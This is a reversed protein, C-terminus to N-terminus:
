VAFFWLGTSDPARTKSLFRRRKLVRQTLIGIERARTDPVVVAVTYTNGRSILRITDDAFPQCFVLFFDSRKEAGGFHVMAQRRRLRGDRVRRIRDLLSVTRKCSVVPVGFVM